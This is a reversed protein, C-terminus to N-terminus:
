SDHIEHKICHRRNAPPFHRKTSTHNADVDVVLETVCGRPTTYCVRHVGVRMLMDKCASCPRAMAMSGDDKYREVFITERKLRRRVRELMISLHNKKSKKLPGTVIPLLAHAGM